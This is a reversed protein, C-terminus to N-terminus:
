QSISAPCPVTVVAGTTGNKKTITTGQFLTM